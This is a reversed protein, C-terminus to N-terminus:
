TGGRLSCFSSCRRAEAGFGQKGRLPNQGWSHSQPTLRGKQPQGASIIPPAKCFAGWLAAETLSEAHFGMQFFFFILFIPTRMFSLFFCLHSFIQLHGHLGPPPLCGTGRPLRLTDPGCARLSASRIRPSSLATTPATGDVTPM